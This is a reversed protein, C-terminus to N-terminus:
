GGWQGASVFDGDRFFRRLEPSEPVVEKFMAIEFPIDQLRRYLRELGQPSRDKLLAILELRGIFAQTLINHMYHYNVESLRLDGTIFREM